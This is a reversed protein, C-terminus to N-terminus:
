YFYTIHYVAIVNIQIQGSIKKLPCLLFWEMLMVHIQVQMKINFNILKEASSTFKSKISNYNKFASLKNSTKTKNKYNSNPSATRSYSNFSSSVKDKWMKAPIGVSGPNSQGPSCM